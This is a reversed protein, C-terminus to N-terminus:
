LVASQTVQRHTLRQKRDAGDAAQRGASGVRRQARSRVQSRLQSRSRLEAQAIGPNRRLGKHALSQPRMHAHPRTAVAGGARCYVGPPIQASIDDSKAVLKASLRLKQTCRNPGSARAGRASTRRRTKPVTAARHHPSNSADSVVVGASNGFEAPNHCIRNSAMRPEM